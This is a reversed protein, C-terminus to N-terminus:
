YSQLRTKAAYDYNTCIWKGDSRGDKRIYKEIYGPAVQIYGICIPDSPPFQELGVFITDEDIEYDKSMQKILMRVAMRMEQEPDEKFQSSDPGKPGTPGSLKSTDFQMKM